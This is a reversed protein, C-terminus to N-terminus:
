AVQCERSAAPTSGARRQSSSLRMVRTVQWQFSSTRTQCGPWAHIQSGPMPTNSGPMLASDTSVRMRGAGSSSCAASSRKGDFRSRRDGGIEVVRVVIRRHPDFEIEVLTARLGPVDVDFGVAPRESQREARRLQRDVARRDINALHGFIGPEVAAEGLQTRAALAIGIERRETM